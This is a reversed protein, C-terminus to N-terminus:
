DKQLADKIPQGLLESPVVWPISTKDIEAPKSCSCLSLLLLTSILISIYKKM